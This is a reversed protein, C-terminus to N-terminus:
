HPSFHLIIPVGTDNSTLTMEIDSLTTISYTNISNKSNPTLTLAKDGDSIEFTGQVTVINGLTSCYYTNDKNFTWSLTKLAAEIQIAKASDEKSIYNKDIPALNDVKVCDWKKALYNKTKNQCSIFLITCCCSILLLYNKM